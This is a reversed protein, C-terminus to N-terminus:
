IRVQVRKKPLHKVKEFLAPNSDRVNEIVRLYQLESEEIEGNETLTEKSIL